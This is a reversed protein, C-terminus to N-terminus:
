AVFLYNGPGDYSTVASWAGDKQALYGLGALREFIQGADDGARAMMRHDIELYLAPHDTELVRQAGRLFHGEWGEIDVKIFDVHLGLDTAFLDLTLVKVTEAVEGRTAQDGVGGMSALGYGRVGSKKIPTHLTLTAPEDSLGAAHVVVNRRGNARLAIELISRTYTSPEFAHVVGTPGVMHSFLKSFQGAHAGVDIVTGGRPVHPRFLPILDKHHQQTCAVAVHRIQDLRQRLNAPM